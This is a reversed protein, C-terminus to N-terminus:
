SDRLPEQILSDDDELFKKDPSDILQKNDDLGDEISSSGSSLKNRGEHVIYKKKTQPAPLPEAQHASQKM